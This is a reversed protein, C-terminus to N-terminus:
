SACQHGHCSKKWISMLQQGFKGMQRNWWTIIRYSKPYCVLSCMNNHISSRTAGVCTIKKWQAGAPESIHIHPLFMEVPCCLNLMNLARPPCLVEPCSAREQAEGWWVHFWVCHRCLPCESVNEVWEDWAQRICCICLILLLGCLNCLWKCSEKWLRITIEHYFCQAGAHFLVLWKM